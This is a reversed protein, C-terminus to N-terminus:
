ASGALDHLGLSPLLSTLTLALWVLLAADLNVAGLAGFVLAALPMIGLVLTRQAGLVAGLRGRDVLRPTVDAGSVLALSVCFGSIVANLGLWLEPPGTLCTWLGGASLVLAAGISTSISAGIRVRKLGCRNTIRAAVSAGLVGAVAGGGGIAAFHMPDVHLHALALVPLLTNGTMIAANTLMNAQTLRRLLPRSRIEDIGQRTRDWWKERPTSPTRATPEGPRIRRQALLSLCYAAIALTWAYPAAALALVASLALPGVATGAQVGTQVRGYASRLANESVLDPVLVSQGTAFAVDACGSLLALLLLWAVGSGGTITGSAWAILSVALLAARISTSLSMMLRANGSRDVLLGLPVSLFLFTLLGLANIAGVTATGAGLLSVAIIPLISRAIADGFGESAACATLRRIARNPNSAPGEQSPTRSFHLAM